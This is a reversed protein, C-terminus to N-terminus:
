DLRIGLKCYKMFFKCNETANVTKFCYYASFFLGEPAQERLTIHM